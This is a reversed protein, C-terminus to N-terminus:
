TCPILNKIKGNTDQQLVYYTVSLHLLPWLFLVTLHTVHPIHEGEEPVLIYFIVIPTIKAEMDEPVLNYNSSM